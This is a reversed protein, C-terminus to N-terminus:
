YAAGFPWLNKCRAWILYAVAALAVTLLGAVVYLVGSSAFIFIWGALAIAVPLPYLYMAFPRQIDPRNRRILVVAVCQAAFQTVIQIVILTNILRDLSLLSAAAAALGLTLVSFSPFGGPHVRAFISFFEGEVAAAYPIRTFGLLVTFVSGFAAIMILIASVQAARAGHIRGVFDAVVAKSEMAERWPVVGIVSLSMALYCLAVLFISILIARPITRSPQRVEDGILCVTFYGQYDYMALLTAAGLGTFFAGSLHFAGAPFDLVLGRHFHLFGSFIIWGMTALLILFL